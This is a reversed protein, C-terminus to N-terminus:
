SIQNDFCPMDRIRGMISYCPGPKGELKLGGSLRVFQLFCHNESRPGPIVFSYARYSSSSDPSGQGHVLERGLSSVTCVFPTCLSSLLRWLQAPPQSHSHLSPLGAPQSKYPSIGAPPAAWLSLELTLLPSGQLSASYQDAWAQSTVVFALSLGAWFSYFFSFM